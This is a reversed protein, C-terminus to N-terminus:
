LARGSPDLWSARRASLSQAARAPPAYGVHRNGSAKRHRQGQSTEEARGVHEIACVISDGLDRSIRGIDHLRRFALDLYRASSGFVPRPDHRDVDIFGAEGQRKLFGPLRLPFTPTTQSGPRPAECEDLDGKSVANEDRPVSVRIHFGEQKAGFSWANGVPARFLRDPQDRGWILNPERV